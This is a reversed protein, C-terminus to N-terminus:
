NDWKLVFSSLSVNLSECFTMSRIVLLTFVLTFQPFFGVFFGKFSFVFRYRNTFVISEWVEIGEIFFFFSLSFWVLYGSTHKPINHDYFGLPTKSFVFHLTIRWVMKFNVIELVSYLFWLMWLWVVFGFYRLFAQGETVKVKGKVFFFLPLFM